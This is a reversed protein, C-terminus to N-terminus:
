ILINLLVLDEAEKNEFIPLQLNTKLMWDVISNEKQPYEMLLIQNLTNLISLPMLEQNFNYYVEKLHNQYSEKSM